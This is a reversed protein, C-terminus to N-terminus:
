RRARSLQAPKLGLLTGAKDTVSQLLGLLGWQFPGLSMPNKSAAYQLDMMVRDALTPLDWYTQRRLSEARETSRWDSHVQVTRRSAGVLKLNGNNDISWYKRRSHDTGETSLPVAFFVEWDLEPNLWSLGQRVWMGDEELLLVNPKM